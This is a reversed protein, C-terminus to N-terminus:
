EPLGLLRAGEVLKDEIEPVIGMERLGRIRWGPERDLGRRAISRAEAIRGALALTVAHYIHTYGVGSSAQVARGFHACAEDLKAEHLASMGLAGHALRALPDLPSLRLARDAHAAAASSNGRYAHIQAGMYHATASSPNLTLARDIASSGADYDKDLLTVVQAAVALADTYNTPSAIVGRAHSLAAGKEAEEFGAYWFCNTHCYAM